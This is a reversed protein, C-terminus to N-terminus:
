LFKYVKDIFDIMIDIFRDRNNIDMFFTLTELMNKNYEYDDRRFTKRVFTLKDILDMQELFPININFRNFEFTINEDIKELNYYKTNM